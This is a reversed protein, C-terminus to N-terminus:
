LLKDVKRISTEFFKYLKNYMVKEREPSLELEELHLLQSIMHAAQQTKGLFINTFIDSMIIIDKKKLVRPKTTIDFRGFSIEQLSEILKGYKM